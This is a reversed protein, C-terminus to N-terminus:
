FKCRYFYVAPTVTCAFDYKGTYKSRHNNWETSCPKIAHITCQSSSSLVYQIFSDFSNWSEDENDNRRHGTLFSAPHMYCFDFYFFFFINKKIM